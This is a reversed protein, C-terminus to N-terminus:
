GVVFHIGDGAVPSGPLMLFNINGLPLPEGVFVDAPFGRGVRASIQYIKIHIVSKAFGFDEVQQAGTYQIAAFETKITRVIEDGDFVDVEFLQPSENMPAVGTVWQTNAYRSRPLWSINWDEGTRVALVQVPSLPKLNVGDYVYTEPEADDVYLGKTVAAYMVPVGLTALATAVFANDPDDLLVLYDNPEHLEAAWETGHLGRLFTSMTISGDVELVADAYCLIEWRGPQGYACYNRGTLMQEESVSYLDGTIMTVNITSDREIVFCDHANNALAVTGLTAPGAFAQVPEFSQGNDASRMLAGGPWRSGAGWMAAVVGPVDTSDLIMPIDLLLMYAPGVYNLLGDSVPGTAGAASSQYVNPLAARATIELVQDVREAVSEIRLQAWIGRAVEVTILDACRLFLYKQPLTFMYQDREIWALNILVDAVQAAQDATMVIALQEARENVARSPYDAYQAGPEYERDADLYSITYRSPLQSDMERNRSVAVGPADGFKRADLDAQPIVAVSAGGRKVAALSYGLEILDFFYAVQLPSIEGRAATPGVIRYGTVEDEAIDVLNLFDDTIGVNNCRERIIDAVLTKKDHGPALVNVNFRVHMSLYSSNHGHRANCSLIGDTVSFTPCALEGRQMSMLAPANLELAYTLFVSGRTDFILLRHAAFHPWLYLLGTVDDLWMDNNAAHETIWTAVIGAAVADISWEGLFEGARTFKLVNIFRTNPVGSTGPNIFKMVWIETGSRNCTAACVTGDVFEPTNDAHLTVADIQTNNPGPTFIKVVGYDILLVNIGGKVTIFKPRFEGYYTRGWFEAGPSVSVAHLADTQGYNQSWGGYRGLSRTAAPYPNYTSTFRVAQETRGWEDANPHDPDDYKLVCTQVEMRTSSTHWGLVVRGAAVEQGNGGLDLRSIPQAVPDEDGEGVGVIEVKVPCGQLGNGYPTLDLDYFVIYMTGEYSPCNGMGLSSEMRPDPATQTGDYFFFGRAPIESVSPDPSIEDLIKGLQTRRRISEMVTETDASGMNYYLQGGLWIRRCQAGPRAEGLSVAFTAFYTETEYSGGGGGGKGGTKNKRVERRYKNNELWIVNGMTAISGYLVPLPVGYASSQFTKDDVAPLRINPGPPPDIYGGISSGIAAGKVAGAPGGTYFGIIGGAIGGVIQGASSM